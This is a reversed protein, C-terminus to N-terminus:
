LPRPPTMGRTSVAVLYRRFTRSISGGVGCTGLYRPCVTVRAWVRGFEIIFDLGLRWAWGGLGVALGLRWAQRGVEVGVGDGDGVVLAISRRSRLLRGMHAVSSSQNRSGSSSGSGWGITQHTNREIKLQEVLGRRLEPSLGQGQNALQGNCTAMREDLRM